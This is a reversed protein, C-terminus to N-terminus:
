FSPATGPHVTPTVPQVQKTNISQVQMRGPTPNQRPAQARLTQLQAPAVPTGPHQQLMQQKVAFPVAPPPPALRAVVPRNALAAPPAVPRRGSTNALVSERQPAVRPAAGIVQAQRVQNADVRVAARRVSQASAFSNQPVAVIATRNVYNINTVNINTVNINTIQTNTVNVQRIYGQSVHYSPNLEISRDPGSQDDLKAWRYISM